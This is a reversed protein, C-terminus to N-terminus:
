FPMLSNIEVTNTKENIINIVEDLENADSLLYGLMKHREAVNESSDNFLPIPGVIKVLPARIVHSNTWSIQKLKEHQEEVARIYNLRESIDSALIVWATKDKYQINTSQIDVHIIEV